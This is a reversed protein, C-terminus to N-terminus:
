EGKQAAKGRRRGKKRPAKKASDVAQLEEADEVLQDALAEADASSRSGQTEVFTKGLVENLADEFPNEQTRKGRRSELLQGRAILLKELADKVDDPAKAMVRVFKSYDADCLGRRRANDKRGCVICRGERDLQRAKEVADM